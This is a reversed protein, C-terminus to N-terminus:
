FFLYTLIFVALVLAGVVEIPVGSSAAVQKVKDVAVEAGAVANSATAGGRKRLGTVQPGVAEALQEKLRDIERLAVNLKDSEPATTDISRELAANTPSVGSPSANIDAATLSPLLPEASRSESTTSNATPPSHRAAVVVPSPIHDGNPHSPSAPAATFQQQKDIDARADGQKGRRHYTM